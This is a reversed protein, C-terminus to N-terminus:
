SDCSFRGITQQSGLLMLVGTYSRWVLFTIIGYNIPESMGFITDRTSRDIPKQLFTVIPYSLPHRKLLSNNFRFSKSLKRKNPFIKRGSRNVREILVIFYINLDCSKTPGNSCYLCVVVSKRFREVDFFITMFSTKRYVQRKKISLHKSFEFRDFYRIKRFLYFYIYM